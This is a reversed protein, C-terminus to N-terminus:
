TPKREYVFLQGLQKGLLSSYESQNSGTQSCIPKHVKVKCFNNQKCAGACPDVCAGSVCARDELCEQNDACRDAGPIWKPNFKESLRFGFNWFDLLASFFM